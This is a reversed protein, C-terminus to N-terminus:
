PWLCFQAVEVLRLDPDSRGSGVLGDINGAQRWLGDRFAAIRCLRAGDFDFRVAAYGAPPADKFRTIRGTESGPGALLHPLSIVVKTGVKM